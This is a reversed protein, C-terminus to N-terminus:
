RGKSTLTHPTNAGGGQPGGISPNGRLNVSPLSLLRLFSLSTSGYRSCILAFPTRTTACEKSILPFTLPPPLRPLTALRPPDGRRQTGEAVDRREWDFGWVCTVWLNREINRRTHARTGKSAPKTFHHYDHRVAEGSTATLRASPGGGEQAGCKM